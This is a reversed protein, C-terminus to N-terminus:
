AHETAHRILPDNPSGDDRHPKKRGVVACTNYLVVSVPQSSYDVTRKRTRSVDGIGSQLIFISIGLGSLTSVDM